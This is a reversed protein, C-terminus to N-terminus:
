SQELPCRGASRMRCIPGLRGDPAICQQMYETMVRNLLSVRSDVDLKHYVREIHSHVTHPSIDLDLAVASEKADDLVMRVIQAERPSLSLANAIVSWARDDMWHDCFTSDKLARIGSMDLGM